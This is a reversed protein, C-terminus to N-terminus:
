FTGHNVERSNNSVMAAFVALLPTTLGPGSCKGTWTTEGESLVTLRAEVASMSPTWTVAAVLSVLSEFAM